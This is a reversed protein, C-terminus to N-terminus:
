RAIHQEGRRLVADAALMLGIAVVYTLLGLATHMLGATAQAVGIRDAILMTVIVRVLNGIIAIPIVLAILLARTRKRTLSVAALLTGLAALTYLSTAGSCAAAIEVREGSALELIYGDQYVPVGLAYLGTVSAETALNQLWVVLPAHWSAPPPVMFLLFAVPLTLARLWDFGRRFWIAGAVAGVLGIGQLTIAGALGGGLSLLVGAALAVLGRRDVGSPLAALEARRAHALFYSVVPVLFGHSMHEANWWVRGLNLLPLVAVVAVAALLLKDSSDFRPRAESTATL